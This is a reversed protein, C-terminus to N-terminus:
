SATTKRMIRCQQAAFLHCHVVRCAVHDACNLISFIMKRVVEPHNEWVAEYMSPSYVASSPFRDSQNGHAKDEGEDDVTEIIGQQSLIRTFSAGVVELKGTTGYSGTKTPTLHGHGLLIGVSEVENKSPRRSSSSFKTPIQPKTIKILTSTDNGQLGFANPTETEFTQDQYSSSFELSQASASPQTFDGSQWNPHVVNLGLVRSAKDLKISPVYPADTPIIRIISDDLAAKTATLVNRIGKLSMKRTMSFPKSLTPQTVSRDEKNSPLFTGVVRKLKPVTSGPGTAENESHRVNIHARTGTAHQSHQNNNASEMWYWRHNGSSRAQILRRKVHKCRKGQM